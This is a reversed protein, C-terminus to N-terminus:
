SYRDGKTNVITVSGGGTFAYYPHQECGGWRKCAETMAVAYLMYCNPGLPTLPKKRDVMLGLEEARDWVEKM